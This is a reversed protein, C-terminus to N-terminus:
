YDSVFDFQLQPAEIKFCGVRNMLVMV